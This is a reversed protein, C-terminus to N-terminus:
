LLQMQGSGGAKEESKYQEMYQRVESGYKKTRLRDDCVQVDADKTAHRLFTRLLRFLRAKLRPLSYEGFADRYHMARRSIVAHSPHDFPLTFLILHDVTGSPLEVGEYTWPTLLWLAPSEAAIFEAQMREQGGSLSQCILTVGKAELSETHRVFADEITKRSGLLVVTKGPPPSRLISELSASEPFTMPLTTREAPCPYGQGVSRPDTKTGPPLIERYEEKAGAPLLLTTRYPDYLSTKLLTGIREPVSELYQSGNQRQEIWTIRGDLNEPDLIHSANELMRRLLVPSEDTILLPIRERLAKAEKSEVDAKVVYRLDQFNRTREIWIQLLDTFSMLDASGESAARLGDLSLSWGYAKTATDELMSADDIIIHAGDKLAGHAEHTPDTLFRLLQRQDLLVVQPLDRFQATYVDSTETAALKGTWVAREEGHVPCDGQVRPAYWQLKVLLSAEDSTLVEQKQLRAVTEPDLLLFPPHFVRVGRPLSGLRRLANELNKVAIWTTGNNEASRAILAGLTSPDLTETLLTVTSGSGSAAPKSSNEHRTAERKSSTPASVKLWQPLKKAGSKKPLVEALLRYGQSSKEFADRLTDLQKQPLELIREWCRELLELTAVVDGMARHVPEHKLKLVTSVYSLSYSALEPFVLSALMSTDIWPRESLDMGEGKLMRIDFGVNQGVIMTDDGIKELITARCEEFTPKGNLAEPRIRTLVQIVPPVDNQPIAILQEHRNVIKGETIRMCAFEIVRNTRPVFGTTETDLVTFSLNPLPVTIGYRLNVNVAAV